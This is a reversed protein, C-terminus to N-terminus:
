SKDEYGKAVEAWHRSELECSTFNGDGLWGRAPCWKCYPELECMDCKYHKGPKISAVLQKLEKWADELNTGEARGDTKKRGDEGNLIKYKPYDILLCM